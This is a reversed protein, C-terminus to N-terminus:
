FQFWQQYISGCTSTSSKKDLKNKESAGGKDRQRQRFEGYKNLKVHLSCSVGLRAWLIIMWCVTQKPFLVLSNSDNIVNKLKITCVSCEISITLYALLSWIVNWLRTTKSATHIKQPNTTLWGMCVVRREKTSQVHKHHNKFCFCFSDYSLECFDNSSRLMRRPELSSFRTHM